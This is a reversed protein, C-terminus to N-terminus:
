KKGATFEITILFDANVKMLTIKGEINIRDRHKSYWDYFVIVSM